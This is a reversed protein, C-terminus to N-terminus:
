DELYLLIYKIIDKLKIKPYAYVDQPDIVYTSITQDIQRIKVKV